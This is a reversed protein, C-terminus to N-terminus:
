LAKKAAVMGNEAQDIVEFDKDFLKLVRMIIMLQFSDDNAM